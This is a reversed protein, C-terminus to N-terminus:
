MSKEKDAVNSFQENVEVRKCMVFLPYPSNMHEVEGKEYLESPVRCWVM